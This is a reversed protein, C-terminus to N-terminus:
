LFQEVLEAHSLRRRQQQGSNRFHTLREQIQRARVIAAVLDGDIREAVNGRAAPDWWQLLHHGSRRSIRVRKPPVIGAPFDRVREFRHKEGYRMTWSSTGSAPVPSGVKMGDNM